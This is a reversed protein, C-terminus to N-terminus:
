EAVGSGGAAAPAPSGGGGGGGGGYSAVASWLGSAIRSGYGTGAGTGTSTTSGGSGARSRGELKSKLDAHKDLRASAAPPIPEKKEAGNGTSGNAEGNARTSRGRRESSSARKREDRERVTPTPSDSRESRPARITSITSALSPSRSLRRSAPPPPSASARDDTSDANSATGPLSSDGSSTRFSEAAFSAASAEPISAPTSETSPGQLPGDASDASSSSSPSRTRPRTGPGEASADDAPAAAFLPPPLLTSSLYDTHSPDYSLSLILSKLNPLTNRLDLVTLGQSYMLQEINKNLLFVGYDFRYRDVGKGYLPFARPGKMMSIEDTVVSRSGRCQIPYSLPVGLYAALTQTVQAAYGLASSLLEDSYSASYTSNPLPLSLISFLLPPPSPSSPYPLVPDIPFIHSLLTILQTRRTRASSRVSSITREKRDLEKSNENLRARNAADLEKAAKLRVRRARLADRRSQLEERVEDLELGMEARVAYLDEVRDEREAKERQLAAWGDEEGELEGEVRRRLGETERVVGEWERETEWLRKVDGWDAAHVMRTERRTRELLAIKKRREEEARLREALLRKRGDRRTRLSRGGGGGGGGVGPDSFNGEDTSGSDTLYEREDDSLSRSLSRAHAHRAFSHHLHSLPATFYEVDTTSASSSAAASPFLSSSPSLCFVLTNPPLPPFATPDRGLSVLGDFEVDWEVLARWSEERAGEEERERVKGKAGRNSGEERPRVFVKVRLRDERLGPWAELSPDEPFSSPSDSYNPDLFARHDVPFTPHMSSFSLPSVFFIRPPPPPSSSASSTSSSSTSPILSSSLTRRRMRERPSVLGGIAGASGSRRISPMAISNGRRRGDKATAPPGELCQDPPILELSIFSDVLRRKLAETRRQKEKAAFQSSSPPRAKAPAAASTPPPPLRPAQRITSASHSTGNSAISARSTSRGHLPQSSPTFLAASTSAPPSPPEVDSDEEKIGPTRMLLTTASSSRRPRTRIQAPSGTADLVLEREQAPKERVGLNGTWSATSGARRRRETAKGKGKRSPADLELDDAALQVTGGFGAGDPAATSTSDLPALTPQGFLAASLQDRKHDLTLNRILIASLHRIRRQDHGEGEDDSQPMSWASQSSDARTLVM